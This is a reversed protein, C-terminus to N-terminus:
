KSIMEVQRQGKDYVIEDIEFFRCNDPQFDALVYDYNQFRLKVFFLAIPHLISLPACFL